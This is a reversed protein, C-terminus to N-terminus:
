LLILLQFNLIYVLLVTALFYALNQQIFLIREPNLHKNLHVLEKM